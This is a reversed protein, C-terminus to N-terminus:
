WVLVRAGRVDIGVMYVAGLGYDGMLHRAQFL